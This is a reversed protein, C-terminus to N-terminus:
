DLEQNQHFTTYRVRLPIIKKKTGSTNAVHHQFSGAVSAHFFELLCRLKIKTASLRLRSTTTHPRTLLKLAFFRSTMPRDASCDPQPLMMLCDPQLDGWTFRFRGKLPNKPLHQLDTASCCAVPKCLPYIPLWMHQSIPLAPDALTFDVYPQLFSSTEALAM